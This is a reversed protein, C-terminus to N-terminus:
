SRKEYRRYLSNARNLHREMATAARDPDHEAIAELIARHEELTLEEAGTVRVLEIHFEELWEFVAQSLATFIPNGNIAAIERHFKKDCELFRDLNSLSAVQDELRRRLRAVDEETAASTAKRVMGVEFFLRADKLHELTKPSTLLLHRAAAAIQSTIAQADLTAVRAREGHSVTILGMQHLAQMAERIAPRGVAFQQMLERESPLRDGPEFRGSSIEEAIREAVEHYLKRRAIPEFGSSTM